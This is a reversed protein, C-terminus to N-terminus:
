DRDILVQFIKPANQGAKAEGLGKYVVKITDGIKVGIMRQDLITCGWVSIPKSDVELTYMMSNQPGVNEQIKILEGTLEDGENKFEHIGPNNEEFAM